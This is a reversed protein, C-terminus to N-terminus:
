RHENSTAKHLIEPRVGPAFFTALNWFNIFTTSRLNLFCMGDGSFVNAVDVIALIAFFPKAFYMYM